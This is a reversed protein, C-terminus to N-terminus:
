VYVQVSILVRGNPSYVWVEESGSFVYAESSSGDRQTLSRMGDRSAAPQSTSEKIYVDYYYSENVVDMETGIPISLESNISILGGKEISYTLM